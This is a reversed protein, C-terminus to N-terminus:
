ERTTTMMMAMILKAIMIGILLLMFSEREALNMTGVNGEARVVGGGTGERGTEFDAVRMWTEYYGECWGNEAM